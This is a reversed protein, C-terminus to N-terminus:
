QITTLENFVKSDIVEPGLCVHVTWSGFRTGLGPMLNYAFVFPPPPNSYSVWSMGKIAFADDCNRWVYHCGQERTVRGDRGM